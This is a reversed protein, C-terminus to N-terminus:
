VLLSPEQAAEPEEAMDPLFQMALIGLYQLFSRGRARGNDQSKGFVRLFVIMSLIDKTPIPRLGDKERFEQFSAISASFKELIGAAIPNSPLTGPHELGSARMRWQGIAAELCEHLDRDICKELDAISTFLSVCLIGFLEQNSDIFEGSPFLDAHLTRDMPQAKEHARSEVLYECTLPCDISEERGQACCQPCISGAVPCSRKGKRSKCLTCTSATAV